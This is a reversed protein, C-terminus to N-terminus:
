GLRPMGAMAVIKSRSHKLAEHRFCVAGGVTAGEAVRNARALRLLSLSPAFFAALQAIVSRATAGALVCLRAHGLLVDLCAGRKPCAGAADLLPVRMWRALAGM